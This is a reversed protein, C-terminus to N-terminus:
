ISTENVRSDRIEDVQLAGSPFLWVSVQVKGAQDGLRIVDNQERFKEWVQAGRDNIWMEM